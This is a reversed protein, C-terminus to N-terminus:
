TPKLSKYEIKFREKDLIGNLNRYTYYDIDLMDEENDIDKKDFCNNKEAFPFYQNNSGHMMYENTIYDLSKLYKNMRMVTVIKDKDPPLARQIKKHYVNVSFCAVPILPFFYKLLSVM